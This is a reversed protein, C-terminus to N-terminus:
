KCSKILLKIPYAVSVAALLGGSWLIIFWIWQKIKPHHNLWEVSKKILTNM